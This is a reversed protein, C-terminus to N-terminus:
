DNQKELLADVANRYRVYAEDPEKNWGLIMSGLYKHMDYITDRVHTTVDRQEQAFRIVNFKLETDSPIIVTETIVRTYVQLMFDKVFEIIEGNTDLKSPLFHKAEIAPDLEQEGKIGPPIYAHTYMALRFLKFENEDQELIIKPTFFKEIRIAALCDKHNQLPLIIDKMFLITQNCNMSPFIGQLKKTLDSISKTSALM